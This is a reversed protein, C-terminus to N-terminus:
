FTLFTLTEFAARILGFLLQTGVEDCCTANKVSQVYISM